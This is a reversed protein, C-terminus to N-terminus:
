FDMARPQAWMAEYFAQAAPVAAAVFVRGYDAAPPRLSQFFGQREGTRTPDVLVRLADVASRAAAQMRELAESTVPTQPSTPISDSM